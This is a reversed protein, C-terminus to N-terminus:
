TRVRPASYQKPDHNEDGKEQREEREVLRLIEAFGGPAAIELFGPGEEVLADGHVRLVPISGGGQEEGGVFPMERQDLEEDLAPGRRLNGVSEVAHSRHHAGDLAPVLLGRNKQQLM